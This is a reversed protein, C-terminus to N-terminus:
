APIATAVVRVTMSTASGPTMQLLINGGSLTADFTGLVANDFITGYETIYATTGDHILNIETAHYDTGQTCQILYKVTRYTSASHTAITSQSTTALTTSTIGQPVIATTDFQEEANIAGVSPTQIETAKPIIVEISDNLAPATTFSLTTGSVTYESKEQYVGDSYVFINNAHLPDISLTFDTTSDDGTFNNRTLSTGTIVAGVIHVVVESGTAPAADLTLTTGSLTFSNKNQYVGEIFVILNDESSPEVSLTYDTQSSGATFLDTTFDTYSTRGDITVTDTSADTTITVGNQGVLTLTDSTSDAAVTTQGTVAINGFANAGLSSNTITLTDTSADTTITIGTGAAFTLTDATSDAVIDSQGSVSITQFANDGATGWTLNGAGDTKLAEGASGDANPLVWIQDAALAPAEFGVYNSGEYFRLENATGVLSVTGSFDVNTTNEWRSTSANWQLIDNDSESAVYVDHLEGIHFGLDYARVALAGASGSSAVTVFAIPIAINPAVPETKTLEGAVSPSPYLIDGVAWTEPTTLDQGDTRLGRLNGLSIVFGFDNTAMDEAALGLVLKEEITGDAIYKSVIIKASSGVAGSAYVVDGKSISEGAKVQFYNQEGLELNVDANLGLELTDTDTNWALEGVATAGTQTTDFQVSEVSLAGVNTVDVNRSATIVEISAGTYPATSFTLTTGSVSYTAKEQYVGDIFVITNDETDPASSLTFDTTTNDGTFENTVQDGTGLVKVFTAIQLLDNLAAGNTLVVSTGTTATYDTAPDLLVGNLFVQIFEPIYSLTQSNDDAGSFTTQGSTATYSYEKWIATQQSAGGGSGGTIEVISETGSVDKKIYMKGDYTNIAVEGLELDSVTPARGAVASRKLKITQAM